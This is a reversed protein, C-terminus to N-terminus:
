ELCFDDRWLLQPTGDGPIYYIELCYEGVGRSRFRVINDGARRGRAPAPM